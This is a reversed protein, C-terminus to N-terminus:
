AKCHAIPTWVALAFSRGCGGLPLLTPVRTPMSRQPEQQLHPPSRACKGLLLEKSATSLARREGSPNHGFVAALQDHCKPALSHSQTHTEDDHIRTLCAVHQGFFFTNEWLCWKQLEVDHTHLIVNRAARHHQCQPSTSTDENTV